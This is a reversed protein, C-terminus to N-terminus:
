CSFFQYLATFRLKIDDRVRRFVKLVEEETGTAEAPDEFGIHLMHGVAGAFHPCSEQAGGCVTVVYDWPEDLYERVDHPVHGSIDIGDESMVKVAFPNVCPAPVTGASRVVLAADLRQLYAHAMQSRCSNGTCIVLIKTKMDAFTLFYRPYPSMMTSFRHIARPLRWCDHTSPRAHLARLAYVRSARGLRRM